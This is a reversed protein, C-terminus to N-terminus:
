DEISMTSLCSNSFSVKRIDQTVVRLNTVLMDAETPSIYVTPCGEFHLAVKDNFRYIKIM